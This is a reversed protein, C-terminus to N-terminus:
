EKYIAIKHWKIYKLSIINFNMFLTCIYYVCM